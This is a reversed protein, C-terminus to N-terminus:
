RDRWHLHASGTEDRLVRGELVLQALVAIVTANGVTGVLAERIAKQSVAEDRGVPIVALVQKRNAPLTAAALKNREKSEARREAMDTAFDEPTYDDGKAGRTPSLVVSSGIEDLDLRMALRRGARQKEAIMAVERSSVEEIRIHAKSYMRLHDTGRQREGSANSHHIVVVAIGLGIGLARAARAFAATSEIGDKTTDPGYEGLPDISVATIPEGLTEEIGVIVQVVRALGEVTTLDWTEDVYRAAAAATADGRSLMLADLRVGLVDIGEGALMLTAGRKVAWGNWEGGRRIADALDEAILTKGSGPPGYMSTYGGQPVWGEVVYPPAPASRVDEATLVRPLESGDRHRMYETLVREVASAAPGTEEVMRRFATEDEVEDARKRIARHRLEKALDPDYAEPEAGSPWASFHRAEIGLADAIEALDCGAHCTVLAPVGNGPALSLSRAATTM